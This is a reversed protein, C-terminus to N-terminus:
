IKHRFELPLLDQNVPKVRQTISNIGCIGTSTEFVPAFFGSERRAIFNCSKEGFLYSTQEKAITYYRSSFEAELCFSSFGPCFFHYPDGAKIKSCHDMNKQRNVTGPLIIRTTQSVREKM